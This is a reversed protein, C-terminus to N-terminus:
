SLQLADRGLMARLSQVLEYTYSTTANPFDIQVQQNGNLVFFTFRDDGPYRELLSYVEGVQRKDQEQNGTRQISIYLHRQAPQRAPQAQRAAQDSGNGRSGNTGNAGNAEVPVHGPVEDASSSYPLAGEQVAQTHPGAAPSSHEQEVPRAIMVYDQASECLIKPERSAGDVRGRVILIKDQQWLDRTAAYTRPFVVVEIGGQIDELHVFAMPDGKKTVHPRVWEVIGAVVVTQGNMEETIEGCFCSVTNQLDVAVQNLPHESVYFGVLEKEWNLMEKRSIPAEEPLVISSQGNRDEDSLMDFMMLQGVEQAQHVQASISLMQDLAALLQVRAGFQDLAGVKIM